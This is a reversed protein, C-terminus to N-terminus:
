PQIELGQWDFIRGSQQPGLGGLVDLLHRASDAPTLLTRGDGKRTFPASLPTAVTGPHLVVLVAMPHSRAWEIAATRVIQHLAAKSARYAYWGGLRNDSISGVRAGLVAVEVRRDRPLQPLIQALFLAPGISNISFSRALWDADLQRLAKEPGRDGDHLLGTAILVRTVPPGDLVAALAVSISAPDTIDCVIPSTRALRHVTKQGRAELALALAAGIGGSAGVIIAAGSEPSLTQDPRPSPQRM